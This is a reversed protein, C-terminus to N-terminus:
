RVESSKRIKSKSGLINETVNVKTKSLRQLETKPCEISFSKRTIRKKSMNWKMHVVSLLHLEFLGCM